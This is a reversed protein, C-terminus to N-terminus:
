KVSRGASAVQSGASLRVNLNIRNAFLPAISMFVMVTAGFVLLLILIQLPGVTDLM